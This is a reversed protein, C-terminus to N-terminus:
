SKDRRRGGEDQACRPRVDRGSSAQHEERVFILSDPKNQRDERSNIFCAWLFYGGVWLAAVRVFTPVNSLVINGANGERWSFRPFTDGVPVMGRGVNMSLEVIRAGPPAPPTPVVLPIRAVGDRAAPEVFYELSQRFKLDASIANAPVAVRYRELVNEFTSRRQLNSGNIRFQLGGVTQGPYAIRTFEISAGAGIGDIVIEAVM